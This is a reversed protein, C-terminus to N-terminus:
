ESVVIKQVQVIKGQERMTCYYMGAPMNNKYLTITNDGEQLVYTHVVLGLTNTLQLTTNFKAKTINLVTSENFPNPSVKFQMTNAVIANLQLTNCPYVNIRIHQYKFGPIPCKNDIAKFQFQFTNYSQTNGSNITTDLNSAHACTTQWSFRGGVQAYGATVGVTPKFPNATTFTFNACPPTNCGSTDTAICPPATCLTQLNHTTASYTNNTTFTGYQLGTTTLTQQQTITDQAVIDFAILDGATVNIEYGTSDAINNKVFQVPAIAPTENTQTPYVTFLFDCYVEAIKIGSRFATTKTTFVYLGLQLSNINPLKFNFTGTSSDLIPTTGLPIAGIPNNYTYPPNFTAYAYHQPNPTTFKWENPNNNSTPCNSIFSGDVWSEFMPKAWQTVLSDGDEDNANANYNFMQGKACIGVPLETFVPSNDYCPKAMKGKYAYMAARLLFGNETINVVSSPRCCYAYTFWWGNVGPIKTGLDVDASEYVIERMAGLNGSGCKIATTGSICGPQSVDRHVGETLTISNITPHNWVCIDMSGAGVNSANGGECIEYYTMKFRYKGNSQCEWTIQGGAQNTAYIVTNSLVILLILAYIKKM